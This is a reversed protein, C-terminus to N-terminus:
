GAGICPLVLYYIIWAQPLCAHVIGPVGSPPSVGAATTLRRATRPHHAAASSRASAALVFLGRTSVLLASQSHASRECATRKDRSGPVTRDGNRVEGRAGAAVELVMRVQYLTSYGGNIDITDTGSMSSGADNRCAHLDGSRQSRTVTEQSGTRHVHVPWAISNACTTLM